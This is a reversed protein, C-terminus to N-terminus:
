FHGSGKTDYFVPQAKVLAAVTHLIFDHAEQIRLVSTSPVRIEIDVEGGRLGEKGTLAVRVLGKKGASELAMLVNPSVGSTTLGIAMDGPCGLVEVQRAFVGEYGFDNALATMLSSDTTIALAPLHREDGKALRGVLESAFHQASAASGGNGFILVKGGGSLVKTMERALIELQPFVSELAEMLRLHEKWHSNILDRM